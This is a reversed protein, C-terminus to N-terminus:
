RLILKVLSKKCEKFLRIQVMNMVASILSAVLIAVVIGITEFYDFDKFLFIVKIFLAILLIKIIPDGLTEIFLSIFTSKNKGNISNSGYKNRSINVEKNTLGTNNLM